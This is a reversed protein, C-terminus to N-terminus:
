DRPRPRPVVDYPERKYDLSGGMWGAPTQIAGCDRCKAAHPRPHACVKFGVSALTSFTPNVTSM